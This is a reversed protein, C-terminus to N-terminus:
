LYRAPDCADPSFPQESASIFNAILQGTIPGLTLGMHSHAFAFWLNRHRPAPGIIPLTDPVTPRRGMWPEHLLIKDVPFAEHIRPIVRMLQQPNPATEMPAMVYSADVDFIPGSLGCGASPEFVAHYGRRQLELACCIGVIGAGLVYVPSTM